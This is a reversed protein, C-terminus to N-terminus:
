SGSEELLVGGVLTVAGAGLFMAIEVATSRERRAQEEKKWEAHGRPEEQGDPPVGKEQWPLDTRSKGILWLGLIWFAVILVVPPTLGAWVVDRSLRSGMGELVLPLYAARYTLPEGRCGFGDLVALVVTQIAIGGLINGIAIGLNGSIAASVTIAIEALNTAVALMILGGFAEGLHLRTSLVDTTNTLFIGAVWVAGAAGAFILVLLPVAISEFM